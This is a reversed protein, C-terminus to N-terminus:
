VASPTNPLDNSCVPGSWVKWKLQEEFSLTNSHAIGDRCGFEVFSRAMSLGYKQFVLVDQGYQGTPKMQKEAGDVTYM